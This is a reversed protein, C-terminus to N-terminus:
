VKEVQSFDVDVPTPRGFIEVSVRLRSKELNIEEITGAFQDFPGDVIRVRDGASFSQRPKFVNEGQIEGTQRLIETFEATSLPKPMTRSTGALFGTVGEIRKIQTCVNKWNIDTLDLDVLIYGPLIKEKIEKKKGDQNETRTAFPIKVDFCFMAFDPNTDMMRRIIREIKQEYGSYTHVVYWGRSM